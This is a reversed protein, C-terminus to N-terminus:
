ESFLRLNALDVAERKGDDFLIDVMGDETVAVVTGPYFWEDIRMALVRSGFAVQDVQAALDVVVLSPPLDAEGGDDFSVLFGIPSEESLMGPYWDGPSWQAWVRDGVEPLDFLDAMGGRLRIQTLDVIGVDRDDFAVNYLGDEADTVVTAPYYWGDDAWRALVRTGVAVQDAEPVRNLLILPTPIDASAPLDEAVDEVDTVDDFVVVFGLATEETLTGPYWDNPTWQAWVADGVELAQGCCVLSMFLWGAVALAITRHNM